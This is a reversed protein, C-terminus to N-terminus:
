PLYKGEGDCKWCTHVSSRDLWREEISGTGNCEDCGVKNKEQKLEEKLKANETETPNPIHQHGMYESYMDHAVQVAEAINEIQEESAEVGEHHMAEAVTEHFYSM